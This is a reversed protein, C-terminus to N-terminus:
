LTTPVSMAELVEAYAQTWGGAEDRVVLPSRIVGDCRPANNHSNTADTQRRKMVYVAFLNDDKKAGGKVPWVCHITLGADEAGQYVRDNNLWNECVAFLGEPQLMASAARCYTEVGGRFECRAPASQMSTPMGGQEIVAATIREDKGNAATAANQDNGISAKSATFGVRFYPPTGTILDYRKAAVDKIDFSGDNEQGGDAASTNPGKTKAWPVLDRFDGQAIQVDHNMAPGDAQDALGGTYVKGRFEVTELNFSLSRRALGVAESRAEVGAAEMNYREGSLKSLLYWSVMQLVSGNGTWLDLYRITRTKGANNEWKGEISSVFSSAAVYATVLDDTTWRHSAVKQLIRWRGVLNCLQEGPNVPVWGPLRSQNADTPMAIAVDERRTDYDDDRGNAQALFDVARGVGDDNMGTEGDGYTSGDLYARAAQVAPPVHGCEKWGRPQRRRATIAGPQTQSQLYKARVPLHGAGKCVPCTRQKQQESVSAGQEGKDGADEERRQKKRLPLSRSGKCKWCTPGKEEGAASSSWGPADSEASATGQPVFRLAANSM